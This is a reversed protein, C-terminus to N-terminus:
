PDIQNTAILNKQEELFTDMADVKKRILTFLKTINIPNSKIQKCDTEIAKLKNFIIKIQVKFLGQQIAILEELLPKGGVNNDGATIDLVNANAYESILTNFEKFGSVLEKDAKLLTEINSSALQNTNFEEQILNILENQQKDSSTLSNLVTDIKTQIKTRSENFHEIKSDKKGKISDVSDGGGIHNFLKKIIKKKIHELKNYIIMHKNTIKCNGSTYKLLKNEKM